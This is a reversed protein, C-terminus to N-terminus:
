RGADARQRLRPAAVHSYLNPRFAFSNKEEKRKREREEEKKEKKTKCGCVAYLGLESTILTVKVLDYKGNILERKVARVAHETESRSVAM